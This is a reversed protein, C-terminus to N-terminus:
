MGAILQNTLCRGVQDNDCSVKYERQSNYDNSDILFLAQMLSGDEARIEIMQNSRGYIDMIVILGHFILADAQRIAIANIVKRHRSFMVCSGNYTCAVQNCAAYDIFQM